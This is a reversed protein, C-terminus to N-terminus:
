LKELEESLRERSSKTARTTKLNEMLEIEIAEEKTGREEDKSNYLDPPPGGSLLENDGGSEEIESGSDIESEEVKEVPLIVDYDSYIHKVIDNRKLRPKEYEHSAIENSIKTSHMSQACLNIKERVEERAKHKMAREVILQEKAKALEDDIKKQKEHYKSLRSISTENDGM